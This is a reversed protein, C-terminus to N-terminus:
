LLSLDLDFFEFCERLRQNFLAGSKGIVRGLEEGTATPRDLVAEVCELYVQHHGNPVEVPDTDMLKARCFDARAARRRYKAAVSPLPDALEPLDPIFYKDMLAAVTEAPLEKFMKDRLPKREDPDLGGFIGFPFGNVLGHVLCVAQIPCVNCVGRAVAKDHPDDSFWPDYDRTTRDSCLATNETM